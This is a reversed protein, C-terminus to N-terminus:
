EGYKLFVVQGANCMSLCPYVMFGKPLGRFLRSKPSTDGAGNRVQVCCNQLQQRDNCLQQAHATSKGASARKHADDGRATACRCADGGFCNSACENAPADNCSRRLDQIVLTRTGPTSSRAHPSAWLRMRLCARTAAALQQICQSGRTSRPHARSSPELLLHAGNDHRCRGTLALLACTSQGARVTAAKSCLQRPARACAAHEGAACLRAPM